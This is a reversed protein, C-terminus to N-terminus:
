LLFDQRCDLRKVNETSGTTGNNFDDLRPSYYEAENRLSNLVVGNNDSYGNNYKKNDKRSLGSALDHNYEQPHTQFPSFCSISNTLLTEWCSLALYSRLLFYISLGTLADWTPFSFLSLGKLDYVVFVLIQTTM